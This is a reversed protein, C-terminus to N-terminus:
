RDEEEEAEEEEEEVNSQLTGQGSARLVSSHVAQYRKERLKRIQASSMGEDDDEPENPLRTNLQIDVVFNALEQDGIEADARPGILYEFADKNTGDQRQGAKRKTLYGNRLYQALTQQVTQERHVTALAPPLVSDEQLGFKGLHKM